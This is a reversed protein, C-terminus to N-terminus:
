CSPLAGLRKLFVASDPIVPMGHEENGSLVQGGKRRNLDLLLLKRSKKRPLAGMSARPAFFAFYARPVLCPPRGDVVDREGDVAM